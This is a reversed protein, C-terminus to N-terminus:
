EQEEMPQTTVADQNVSEPLTKVEKTEIVKMTQQETKNSDGANIGLLTLVAMILYGQLEPSINFGFKAILFALVGLLVIRTTKPDRQAVTRVYILIRSIQIKM